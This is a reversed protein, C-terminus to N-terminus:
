WGAPAFLFSSTRIKILLLFNSRRKMTSSKQLATLQASREGSGAKFFAQRDPKQPGGSIRAIGDQGPIHQRHVPGDAQLDLIADGTEYQDFIDIDLRKLWPEIAPQYKPWIWTPGLDARYLGSGLDAISGIRGGIQQAAELVIIKLGATHLLEACALGSLGAGVIIVDCDFEVKRM